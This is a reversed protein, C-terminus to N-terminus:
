RGDGGARARSSSSSAMKAEPLMDAQVEGIGVQRAVAAGDRENDGTLM